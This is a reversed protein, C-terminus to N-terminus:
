IHSQPSIPLFISLLWLQNARYLQLIHPCSNLLVLGLDSCHRNHGSRDQLVTLLGYASTLYTSTIPYFAISSKISSGKNM